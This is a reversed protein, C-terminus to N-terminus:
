REDSITRKRVFRETVVSAVLLVLGVVATWWWGRAIRRSYVIEHRGEPVVVGAFLLDTEIAKARKGDITIELEPTLKESSALFFPADASTTVRQEDPTYKTMTVAANTPTLDPPMVPDDTIVAETAFDINLSGLFEADNLKRLKSIGRFRPLEALNRFLRGDPLERDFIVPTTVRGYFLPAENPNDNAGSLFTGSVGISRIRLTVTEGLRAYPRLPVYLKSMVDADAKTFNRTWVPNGDKILTFELHPIAGREQEIGTPVEIAWFPEADVHISRQTISGPGYRFGGIEKVGPKTEKFIGWKIIDISKNEIYWRIGLLGTLPDNFNFKLSNFTLVTSAGSWATPDIRVLLRRYAEESGFHSRVDQVRIYEASNPWLYNFFPAIRFPERDARLFETTPTSPVKAQEMTLYPHFRGAVLALDFAIVVAAVDFIVHKRLRAAAVFYGVPLPLLLGVRALASYKLGPLRAALPAILPAGFMCGLIFIAVGLWFWRMRARRNFLGFLVLPITLLGLYVTTEVYNNLFGLSSDGRWDKYAPNGLRDADIFSRWHTKPFTAALATGQRAELYGSRQLLQVFPVLMPLAILLAIAVGSACRLAPRWSAKPRRLALLLAYAGIAWAGYAMAAPFGSLAYSLAILAILAIPTRKGNFTRRVIWLLAPYLATANTIQWLWRVAYVGAGAIVIAGLAAGRKGLREERLWLYAFYFALNLKLFVIATFVWMQPVLLAPILIFPSLVAAASSGWGPIGSGVYPNWHFTRWDNRVLSMLTFYATPPDNLLSNQAQQVDAPRMLNWPDFNFFVDNPSLARGMFIVPFFVVINYVALAILATRHKKLRRRV